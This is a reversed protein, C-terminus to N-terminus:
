SCVYLAGTCQSLSWFPNNNTQKDAESTFLIMLLQNHGVLKEFVNKHGDM